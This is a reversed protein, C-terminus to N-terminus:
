EDAHKCHDQQKNHRRYPEANATNQGRFPSLTKAMYEEVFLQAVLATFGTGKALGNGHCDADLWRVM